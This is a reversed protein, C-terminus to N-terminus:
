LGFIDVLDPIDEDGTTTMVDQLDSIDSLDMTEYYSALADEPTPDLLDLSYPCPYSYQYRPQSQEHICLHRDPVPDELWIDDDLPATPFDEEEKATADKSPTM